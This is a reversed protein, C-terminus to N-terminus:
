NLGNTSRGSTIYGDFGWTQRAVTELLWSNACTPVGNVANYSNGVWVTLGPLFVFM